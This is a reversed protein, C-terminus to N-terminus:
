SSDFFQLISSSSLCVHDDKGAFPSKLMLREEVMIGEQTKHGLGQKCQQVLETSHISEIPNVENSQSTQVNGRHESSYLLGETYQQAKALDPGSLVRLSVAPFKLVAPDAEGFSLANSIGFDDDEPIPNYWIEGEDDADNEENFDLSCNRSISSNTTNCVVYTCYEESSKLFPRSLQHKPSISLPSIDQCTKNEELNFSRLTSQYLWNRKKSVTISNLPKHSRFGINDKLDELERKKM